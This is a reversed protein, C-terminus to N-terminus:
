VYIGHEYYAILLHPNCTYYKLVNSMADDM